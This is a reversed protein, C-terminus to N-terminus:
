QYDYFPGRLSDRLPKEPEQGPDDINFQTNDPLLVIRENLEGCEYADFLASALNKRDDKGFPFTITDCDGEPYKVILIDDHLWLNGNDDKTLQIM